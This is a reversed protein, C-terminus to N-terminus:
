WRFVNPQTVKQFHFEKDKESESEILEGNQIAKVCQEFVNFCITKTV